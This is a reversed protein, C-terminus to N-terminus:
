RWRADWAEGRNRLHKDFWELMMRRHAVRNEWTGGLGHDEGPFRVLEVERGLLRLATFM